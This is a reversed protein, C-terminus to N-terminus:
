GAGGTELVDEGRTGPAVVAGGDADGRSGARLEVELLHVRASLVLLM